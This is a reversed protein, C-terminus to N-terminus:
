ICLAGPFQRLRDSSDADTAGLVCFDKEEVMRRGLLRKVGVIENKVLSQGRPWREIEGVLPTVKKIFIFIHIFKKARAFESWLLADVDFRGIFNRRVSDDGHRCVAFQNVGDFVVYIAGQVLVM